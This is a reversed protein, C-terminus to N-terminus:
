IEDGPPPTELRAKDLVELMDARDAPAAMRRLFLAGTEVMDIKQAIAAAMWQNMSVDDAQALRSVADRISGPLKIQYSARIM